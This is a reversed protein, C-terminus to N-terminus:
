EDEMEPLSEEMQRRANEYADQINRQFDESQIKDNLKKMSEEIKQKSEEMRQKFAESDFQFDKFDFGQFNPFKLDNFSPMSFAFQHDPFFMKPHNVAGLQRLANKILNLHQSLDKVEIEGKIYIASFQGKQHRLVVIENNRENVKKLYYGLTSSNENNVEMYQEYKSALLSKKFDSYLNEPIDKKSIAVSNYVDPVKPYNEALFPSDAVHKPMAFISKLMEQSMSVHTVGERSPYKKLFDDIPTNQAKVNMIATMGAIALFIFYQKKM